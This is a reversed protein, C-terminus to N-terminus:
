VPSFDVYKIAVHDTADLTYGISDTDVVIAGAVLSYQAFELLLGNVYVEISDVIAGSPVTFSAADGAYSARKPISAEGVAEVDGITAVERKPDTADEAYYLKGTEGGSVFVNGSGEGGLLFLDEDAEAEIVGQGDGGIFVHGNEGPTLILDQVGEGSAAITVNTGDTSFKVKPDTTGSGLKVEVGDAVAAVSNEGTADKIIDLIAWVMSSGTFKLVQGDTGANLYAGSGNSGGIILQNASSFHMQKAKLLAM